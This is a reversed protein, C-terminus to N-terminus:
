DPIWFKIYINFLCSHPMWRSVHCVCFFKKEQVNNEFIFRLITFGLIKYSEIIHLIYIYLCAELEFHFIKSLYFIFIHLLWYIDHSFFLFCVRFYFIGHPVLTVSVEKIKKKHKRMKTCFKINKRRLKNAKQSVLYFLSYILNHSM